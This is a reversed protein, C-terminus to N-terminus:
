STFTISQVFSTCGSHLRSANYGYYGLCDIEYQTGAHTTIIVESYGVGDATGGNQLIAGAEGGVDVTGLAHSTDEQSTDVLFHLAEAGTGSTLQLEDATSLALHFGAPVAYAIPPAGFDVAHPSGTPPLPTELPTVM